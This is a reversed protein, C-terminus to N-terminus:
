DCWVFVTQSATNVVTGGISAKFEVSHNGPSLSLVHQGIGCTSAGAACSVTTSFWGTPVAVELQWPASPAPTVTVIPDVHLYSGHTQWENVAPSFAVGPFWVPVWEWRAGSFQCEYTILDEVYTDGDHAADCPYPAAAYAHAPVLALAGFMVVAAVLVRVM